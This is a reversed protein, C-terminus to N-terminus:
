YAGKGTLIAPLTKALIKFDLGPSWHEIYFIDMDIMEEYTLEARGSVQWLGTIGPLINLRKKAWEDYVEAEWLVQPRPGILSMEGRLVNILQPLEDISFRRLFKGVATIRPDDKMKFVPGPRDSSEKLQDLLQDANKVMTRFKLFQFTRGKYGMRPQQFFTPGRSTSKILFAVLSLPIFFIGLIFSAFTVDMVRKTLFATGHLSTPKLQFTPIGLSDDVLVEGMRLELIDPLLRFSVGKEECYTAIRIADKHHLAPHALLVENIRSRAITRKISETDGGKKKLIARDGHQELIKKLANSLYGDGLILVRYPRGQRRIWVLYGTKILERVVFLLFGSFLGGLFFVIRSYSDERYLFMASMSLLTAIISGRTIRLADDIAPLNIRRYAGQWSLALPWLALVLPSAKLYISLPPVGKVAPFVDTFPQFYFRFGYALFYAMAVVFVDGMLIVARSFIFKLTQTNSLGLRYPIMTM